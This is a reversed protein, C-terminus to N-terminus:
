EPTILGLENNLIHGSALSSIASLPQRWQHAINGIMEGMVAMKSQQFLMIERDRNKEIEEEIRSTFTENLKAIEKEKDQLSKQLQMIENQALEFKEQLAQLSDASM